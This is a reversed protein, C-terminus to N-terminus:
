SQTHYLVMGDIPSRIINGIKMGHAIVMPELIDRSLFAVSGVCNFSHIQYNPYHVVLHDFFEQFSKKILRKCYEHDRNRDIFRFFNALFRNPLPQNYIRDFIQENTLPSFAQFTENLDDPLYGRMKDRLLHRGMFAGSGEDGMFYGLSDINMTINTGDYLATNTGTGLIAGFGSQHGLVARCAGLLDHGVHIDANVFFQKLADSVTKNNAETSCGAGYFWVTNVEEPVGNDSRMQPSLNAYLSDYIQKTNVFYPNYGESVYKKQEGSSLVLRWDTKTSGSDAIIQM